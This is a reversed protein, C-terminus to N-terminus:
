ARAPVCLVASVLVRVAVTEKVVVRDTVKCALILTVSLTHALTVIEPNPGPNLDPNRTLTITTLTLALTQNRTITVTVTTNITITSWVRGRACVRVCLCVDICM